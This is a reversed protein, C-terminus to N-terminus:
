IIKMYSELFSILNILFCAVQVQVRKSFAAKGVNKIKLKKNKIRFASTSLGLSSIFGFGIAM